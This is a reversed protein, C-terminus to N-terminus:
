EPNDLAAKLINEIATYKHYVSKLVYGNFLEEEVLTSYQEVDEFGLPTDEGENMVSKGSTLKTYLSELEPLFKVAKDLVSEFDQRYEPNELAKWNIDIQDAAIAAEERLEELTMNSEVSGAATAVATVTSLTRIQVIMMEADLVEASRVNLYM